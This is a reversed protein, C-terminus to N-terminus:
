NPPTRVFLELIEEMKVIILMIGDWGFHSELLYTNSLSTPHYAGIEIFKGNKKGDLATLVFLDQGAQSYFEKLQLSGKFDVKLNKTTNFNNNNKM